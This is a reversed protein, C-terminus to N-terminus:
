CVQLNESPNDLFLKKFAFSGVVNNPIKDPEPTVLKQTFKIYNKSTVDLYINGTEECYSKHASANESVQVSRIIKRNIKKLFDIKSNKKFTSKIYGFKGLMTYMMVTMIEIIIKIPSRRKTQTKYSSGMFRCGNLLYFDEFFRPHINYYGRGFFGTVATIHCILRNKKAMRFINKLAVGPEFCWFLVGADIVLDYKEILMQPLNKQLNHNITTKGNIDLTDVNRFGLSMGLTYPNLELPVENLRFNM